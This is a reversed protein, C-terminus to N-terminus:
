RLVSRVPMLLQKGKKWPQGGVYKRYENTPQNVQRRPSGLRVKSPNYCASQAGCITLNSNHYGNNECQNRPPTWSPRVQERLLGKLVLRPYGNATAIRDNIASAMPQVPESGPRVLIKTLGVGGTVAPITTRCGPVCGVGDIEAGAVGVGTEAMDGDVAMGSGPTLGVRRGRSITVSPVTTGGGSGVTPTPWCGSGVASGFAGEGTGCWVTAGTGVGVRWGVAVAAKIVRGVLVAVGGAVGVTGGGTVPAPIIMSHIKKSPRTWLESASSYTWIRFWPAAATSRIPHCSCSTDSPKGM